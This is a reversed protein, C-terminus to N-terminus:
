DVATASLSGEIGYGSKEGILNLNRCEQILLQAYEVLYPYICKLNRRYSSLTIRDRNEIQLEKRLAKNQNFERIFSEFNSYGMKCRAIELKIINNFNLSEHQPHYDMSAQLEIFFNDLSPNLAFMDGMYGHFKKFHQFALVQNWPLVSEMYDKSHVVLLNIKYPICIKRKLFIFGEGFFDSLVKQFISIVNRVKCHRKNKNIKEIFLIKLNSYESLMQDFISYISISKEFLNSIFDTLRSQKLSIIRIKINTKQDDLKRGFLKEYEKRGKVSKLSIVITRASELFDDIQTLLYKYGKAIIKIM